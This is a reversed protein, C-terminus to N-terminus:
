LGAESMEADVALGSTFTSLRKAMTSRLRVASQPFEKLVRHFMSRSIKLVTSPERAMVTAPRDTPILLALEGILSHLSVIQGGRRTLGDPDVHFSGSLVVYGGDSLDGRRFLVEGTRLIKTEASFAILRLADAEVDTFLPLRALNRIDDELAM